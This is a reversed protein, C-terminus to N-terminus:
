LDPFFDLKKISKKEWSSLQTMQFCNLFICFFINEVYTENLNKALVFLLFKPALKLLVKVINIKGQLTIKAYVDIKFIVYHPVYGLGNHICNSRLGALIPM